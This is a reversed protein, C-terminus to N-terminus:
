DRITCPLKWVYDNKDNNWWGLTGKVYGWIRDRERQWGGERRVSVGKNRLFCMKGWWRYSCLVSVVLICSNGQKRSGSLCSWGCGKVRIAWLCLDRVLSQMKSLSWSCLILNQLHGDRLRKWKTHLLPLVLLVVAGHIWLIWLVNAVSM